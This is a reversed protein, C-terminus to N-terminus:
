EGIASPRPTESATNLHHLLERRHDSDAERLLEQVQNQLETLHSSRVIQKVELLTAPDLSFIRLGLGLLLKTYIVEGAMEGCLSVPKGVKAGAEITNKILQLVSPHLPDYLYNVEDDVRDIALTYQILDNTGISLFDLKEAFMEAMIAVAPVEVMGGIPVNPDHPIKEDALEMKIEEIIAMVQFVENISSLMPIMCQVSGYASARFIARLQPRFLEQHRLCLRVARVGLAPNTVVNGQESRQRGGDVQKDAGLDLTRITVTKLRQVARRYAEVQEEEDPPDDRNMFLYETRYLGVGTAGSNVAMEIDAPLEVNAMLQIEHGDLTRSELKQITLLRQRRQENIRQRRQFDLLVSESPDVVVISSHSDVALIDGHAIYRIAGHLGVVAPIGMSRALIAVHSIPSGLDTVFASIASDKYYVMESPTLDHAVLIKGSLDKKNPVRFSQGPIMMQRYIQKIVQNVDDQKSRLYPDEISEFVEILHNRYQLLATEASCRNKRIIEVTSERLTRDEAMMVHAEFFTAIEGPTDGSVKEMALHLQKVTNQLAIDLRQIEQTVDRLSHPQGSATQFGTEDVVVASGIAIASGVGAGNLVIM